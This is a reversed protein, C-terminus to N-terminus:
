NASHRLRAYETSFAFEVISSTPINPPVICYNVACNHPNLFRRCVFSPPGLRCFLLIRGM